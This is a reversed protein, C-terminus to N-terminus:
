YPIVIPPPPILKFPLALAPRAKISAGGDGLLVANDRNFELCAKVLEDEEEEANRSYGNLEIAFAERATKGDLLANLGDIVPMLCKGAFEKDAWPTSALDSDCVWVFDDTYGAFSAAGNKILDPGLEVGTQCSLLKIVKGKVEKPDYKGVELIVAENQGTFTSNGSWCPKGNRRVYLTHYEPVEVSYVYGEYDVYGRKSKMCLPERQPGDCINVLYMESYPSYGSHPVPSKYVSAAYGIKLAIEQVDDALKKSSTSYTKGSGDGVIMADLLIKLQRPCLAKIDKPMYKKKAKGFQRLYQFLQKNRFEFGQSHKNKHEWFKFGVEEAIPKLWGKILTRKQDNNQAITVRYFLYSGINGNKRKRRGKGLSTCGEALWIGFFRLFNDMLIRKAEIERSGCKGSQNVFIRQVSPLIFFERDEGFWKADRKYKLRSKTKGTSIFQGNEPSRALGNDLDEPKILTFPRYKGDHVMWSCYLNHNPTVLLDVAGNQYFMKGKYPYKFQRKITQYELGNTEPNLTAVRENASLEPFLKWGNDTLIETDESYCESGHGVGIIIDSQPATLQFPLRRVLMGFLQFPEVRPAIYRLCFGSASRTPLDFDALALTVPIKIM